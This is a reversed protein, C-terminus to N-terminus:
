YLLGLITEVDECDYIVNHLTIKDRICAERTETKRRKGKNGRKRERQHKEKGPCICLVSQAFWPLLVLHTEVSVSGVQSGIQGLVAMNITRADNVAAM